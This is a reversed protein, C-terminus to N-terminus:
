AAGEKVPCGYRVHDDTYKTVNVTRFVNGNVDEIIKRDANFYCDDVCIYGDADSIMSLFDGAPNYAKYVARMQEALSLLKKECELRTM